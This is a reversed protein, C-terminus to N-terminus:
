RFHPKKNVVGSVYFYIDYWSVQYVNERCMGKLRFLRDPEDLQCVGCPFDSNCGVPELGNETTYACHDSPYSDSAFPDIPAEEGTSDFLWKGKRPYFRQRFATIHPFLVAQVSTEISCYLM